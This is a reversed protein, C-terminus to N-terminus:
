QISRGRGARGPGPGEPHHLSAVVAAAPMSGDTSAVVPAREGDGPGGGFVNAVAGATLMAAAWIGGIGIATWLMWSLDTSAAWRDEPTARHNPEPTMM